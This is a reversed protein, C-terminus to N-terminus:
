FYVCHHFLTYVINFSDCFLKEETRYKTIVIIASDTFAELIWSVTNKLCLLIM